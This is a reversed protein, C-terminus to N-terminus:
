DTIIMPLKLRIDDSAAGILFEYNGPEVVYQKKETSWYRLREAPVEIAIRKSEGRKLHVRTFSCLALKPQPVSSHVHRFYVQAVEDGDRDGSNKMTFSVKVTGDAPIKNSDLQGRHFDFKTYSLGHGFAYLPQGNFYRYTRNSMSYNTFDPLDTTSAYFTIPLHGSPNVDGFLVEGVALGGEEGPYWAQLIARLNTTEWPLAIASGSCDVMVVPKGTAHLAEVLKEQVEPLEISDRDFGEGEQAATIGGVYVILDADAANSLAEANLEPVPRTTNNDQSSWAAIGRNTVTTIPCGQAFTVEINKGAVQKIGELISIPHRATGNYNGHLMSKSNGNPGIIAIRKIKSRDLPLVGDNKLLVISEEAIKLALARHQPTDNQDIGIKSYPCAQLPDFLGLKFRTWLTYYLAEDLEKENILGKQVALVLANYDGGCCLDCGAKVADAAAEEPTKVYHHQNWIDGIAGCDSVVYGDFGWGKRLLDTLLFPSACDPVEYLASYAGMVGGVHGERVAMEFQPLYTEYLDREPPMANFRHREAEPGNHVAYHKACAMALIYNPDDGQIGKIFQVAITGTLFPDEGYTEQGRGWRPDRFININPTWFTLGSWWKSNGNHTSAYQNFKARGEVGIVHGERNLLAPEWTAATGIPEPFVTAIGDNAVGHLAENWYNYAPLGLRPIAPADNQLQAVKEALSMRRILDDERAQLPQSPDRWTSPESIDPIRTASTSFPEALESANFSAVSAGSADRVEFANFKAAHKVAVFSVKLPGSISDDEHEVAGAIYCAKRTGGAAAFIDFNTALAVDGSTVDFLREGQAEYLTEVEGIIIKYKGAPLHSVSVTFHEGNIEERFAAANNTAGEIAVSANDKHHTFDGSVSVQQGCVACTEEEAFTDPTALWLGAICALLVGALTRTRAFLM